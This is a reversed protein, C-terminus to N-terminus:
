GRIAPIGGSRLIRRGQGQPFARSIQPQQFKAHERIKRGREGNESAINGGHSRIPGVEDCPQVQGLRLVVCDVFQPRDRGKALRNWTKPM